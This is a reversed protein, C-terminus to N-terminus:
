SFPIIVNTNTNTKKSYGSDHNGRRTGQESCYKMYVTYLVSYHIAKQRKYCYYCYYRNCTSDITAADQYRPYWCFWGTVACWFLHVPVPGTNASSLYNTDLM